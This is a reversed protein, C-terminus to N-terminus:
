LLSRLKRKIDRVERISPDRTLKRVSALIRSDAEDTISGRHQELFREAIRFGETTETHPYFVGAPHKMGERRDALWVWAMELAARLAEDDGEVAEQCFTLFARAHRAEDRSLLRWIRKIVPEKMVTALTGYYTSARTESIINMMLTGARHFGMPYPARKYLAEKAPMDIGFRALYRNLMLAHRSEEAGWSLAWSSFSFEDGWERLFNHAGPLTGFEAVASHYILQLDDPTVLTPDIQDLDGLDKWEWRTTEFWDIIQNYHSDLWKRSTGPYSSLATFAPIAQSLTAQVAEPGLERAPLIDEVDLETDQAWAPRRGDASVGYWRTRDFARNQRLAALSGPIEDGDVRAFLAALTPAHQDRLWAEFGAEPATLTQVQAGGPAAPTPLGELGALAVHFIPPHAARSSSPDIQSATM